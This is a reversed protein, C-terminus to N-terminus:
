KFVLFIEKIKYFLLLFLIYHGTDSNSKNQPLGEHVERVFCYVIQLVCWSLYSTLLGSRLLM